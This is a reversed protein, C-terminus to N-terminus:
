AARGDPCHRRPRLHARGVRLCRRPSAGPRQHPVGPLLAGARRRRPRGPQPQGALGAARRPVGAPPPHLPLRPDRAATPTTAQPLRWIDHDGVIADNGDGIGVQYYLTRTRDDWMRLLWQAGFRAEATFDAGARARAWRRRSTACARCCCPTPTARRRCSSSTTAPTGGAAPPTSGRRRAAHPRGQLRRRRRGEAHPLDDREADNLHGARHPARLPHLRPATASSGTSPLPTESRGPTSRPVRESGSRARAPRARRRQARVHRGPTRAHLRDPLRAPFRRSWRGLDPGVRGAAVVRGGDDTVTFRARPAPVSAMLYARKDASLPYGVQNTRVYGEAASAGAAAPSRSGLVVGYTGLALVAAVIAASIGRWHAM